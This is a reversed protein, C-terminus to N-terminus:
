LEVSEIIFRVHDGPSLLTPPMQAPDFLPLDTRGILQWGGPSVVPYIATQAGGIGVSGAPVALRPEARRPTALSPDLGGLYAFGPLFGLFYVVYDGDAHRQVVAEPSLGTRLAVEALDPGHAGGYRVPIEIERGAEAQDDAGEWAALLASELVAPDTRLPDFIVTFNNMGPVMELVDPRAQLMTAVSWIRRQTVLSTPPPPICLLAAEGLPLISLTSM